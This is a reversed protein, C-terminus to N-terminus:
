SCRDFDAYRAYQPGQGNQDDGLAAIAHEDVEAKDCRGGPCFGIDDGEGDSPAAVCGGLAVLACIWLWKSPRREVSLRGANGQLLRRAPRGDGSIM